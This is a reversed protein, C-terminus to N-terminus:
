PPELCTDCSQKPPKPQKPTAPALKKLTAAKTVDGSALSVNALVVDAYGHLKLTITVPKGDRPVTLTAPAKKGTDSNNM